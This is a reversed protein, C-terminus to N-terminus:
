HSVVYYDCISFIFLFFFEINGQWAYDMDEKTFTFENTKIACTHFQISYLLERTDQNNLNNSDGSTLVQYCRILIDGRLRLNGIEFLFQRTTIPIIHIDTPVYLDFSLTLSYTADSVQLTSM